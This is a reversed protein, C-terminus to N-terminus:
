PQGQEKGPPPIFNKGGAAKCVRPFDFIYSDRHWFDIAAQRPRFFGIQGRAPAARDIKDSISMIAQSKM